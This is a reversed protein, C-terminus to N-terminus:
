LYQNLTALAEKRKKFEPVHGYNENVSKIFSSSAILLGEFGKEAMPNQEIKLEQKLNDGKYSIMMKANLDMITYLLLIDKFSMSIAKDKPTGTFKEMLDSVEDETIIGSKSLQNALPYKDTEDFMVSVNYIAMMFTQSQILNLKWQQNEMIKQKLINDNMEQLMNSIGNDLLTATPLQM